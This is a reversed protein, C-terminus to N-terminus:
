VCERQRVKLAGTSYVWEEFESRTVKGSLDADMSKFAKILSPGAQLASVGTKRALALALRQAAVAATVPQVGAHGRCL